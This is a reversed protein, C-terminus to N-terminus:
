LLVFELVWVYPNSHWPARKANLSDWLDRYRERVPADNRMTGHLGEAICDASSIMRLREVRVETLELTIRSAWRPMFISPRWPTKRGLESCCCEPIQQCCEGDARYYIDRDDLGDPRHQPLKEVDWPMLDIYFTERVYLRDGPKGYPCLITSHREGDKWPTFENAYHRHEAISDPVFPLKVLRRTQTKRGDLLARVMQGSFIIPREKAAM